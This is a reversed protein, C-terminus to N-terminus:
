SGSYLLDFVVSETSERSQKGIGNKVTKCKKTTSEMRYILSVWTLKQACTLIADRITNYSMTFLKKKRHILYHERWWILTELLQRLHSFRAHQNSDTVTSPEVWKKLRAPEPVCINWLITHCYTKLHAPIKLILKVAFTCIQQLIKTYSFKSFWIKFSKVSNSGYSNPTSTNRNAVCGVPLDPLNDRNYPKISM